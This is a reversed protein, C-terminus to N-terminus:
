AEELAAQAVASIASLGLTAVLTPLPQGNDPKLAQAMAGVQLLASRLRSVEADLAEVEALHTLALTPSM